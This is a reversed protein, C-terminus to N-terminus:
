APRTVEEALAVAAVADPAYGDAGISDAFNQTLVAGGVLVKCPLNNDKVLEVTERMRAMTTTMLASLGIISANRAKAAAVIDAAKVDKGLDVVDYGHNGLMLAVINKGIDHIDGEVTALVVVARATAKGQAELMPKLYAFASQMTEASRLLQPLFYERRAYRQGVETIAPILKDQVLQYPTAGAALAADALATIKDQQGSIVAQYLDPPDGAHGSLVPTVAAASGANWNSYAAIFRGAQRDKNTLADAAAAAERLRVSGPNIICADLGAGAAM